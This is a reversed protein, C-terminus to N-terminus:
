RTSAPACSRPTPYSPPCRGGCRRRWGRRPTSNRRTAARIRGTRDRAAPTTSTGEEQRAPSMARGCAACRLIGASLDWFRRGANAPKRNKSLNGRAADVWERPIGSDPVPVGIREEVPRVKTTYRRRYVRGAPGNESARKRTEAVEGFWYVGYRKGPDLGALVEPGVIGRLEEHTHPRYLDRMLMKRISQLDWLPKGTPSPVGDEGLRERVGYLSTGEVGVMRFIRRMVAMQEPDVM